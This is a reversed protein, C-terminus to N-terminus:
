HDENVLARSCYISRVHRKQMHHHCQRPLFFALFFIAARFGLIECPWKKRATKKRTVCWPRISPVVRLRHYHLFLHLVHVTPGLSVLTVHVNPPIQRELAIAVAKKLYVNRAWPWIRRVKLVIATVQSLFHIFMARYRLYLNTKDDAKVPLFLLRELTSIVFLVFQIIIM